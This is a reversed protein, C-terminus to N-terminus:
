NNILSKFYNILSYITEFKIFYFYSKKYFLNIKNFFLNSILNSLYNKFFLISIIDILNLKSTKISFVYQYYHKISLKKYYFLDKLNFFYIGIM